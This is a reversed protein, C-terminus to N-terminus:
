VKVNRKKRWAHFRRRSTGDALEYSAVLLLMIPGGFFGLIVGWAHPDEPYGWRYSCQRFGDPGEASCRRRMAERVRIVFFLWTAAVAVVILFVIWGNM